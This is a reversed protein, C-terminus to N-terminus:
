FARSDGYSTSRSVDEVSLATFHSNNGIPQDTFDFSSVVRRKINGAPSCRRFDSVIWVNLFDNSFSIVSSKPDAGNTVPWLHEYRSSDDPVLSQCRVRCHPCLQLLRSCVVGAPWDLTIAADCCCGIRTRDRLEVGRENSLNRATLKKTRSSRARSCLPQHFTPTRYRTFTPTRPLPRRSKYAM